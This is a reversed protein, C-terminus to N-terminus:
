KKCFVITLHGNNSKGGFYDWISGIIAFPAVAFIKLKELTTEQNPVSKIRALYKARCFADVLFSSTGSFYYKNVTIEFVNCLNKFARLNWLGVHHPPLNLVEYKSFRQFYPENNPVSLILKGQPNLLKIAAELVPKIQTIHELVQFACVVDYQGANDEAHTEVSENKVKLGKDVAIKAAKENFELGLLNQTKPLLRELFKGTNCGIELVKSNPKIQEFAFKHDEAWDRDYEGGKNTIESQLNQYFEEDGAIEFPYYFRYGVDECEFLYVTEGHRFYKEVNVNEQQQYLRVIDAVKFTDVLKVNNKNTVPSKPLDKSLM